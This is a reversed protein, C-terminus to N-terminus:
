ATTEPLEKKIMEELTQIISEYEIIKDKADPTKEQACKYQQQKLVGIMGKFMPVLVYPDCYPDNKKTKAIDLTADVLISAIIQNKARGEFPVAKQAAGIYSVLGMRITELDNSYM